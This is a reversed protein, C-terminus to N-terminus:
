SRLRYARQRCANSCFKADRRKPLFAKGCGTCVIMSRSRNRRRRERQACRNSCVTLLKSTGYVHITRNTAFRLRQGCDKCTAQETANELERETVCADCVPVTEHQFLGTTPNGNGDDGYFRWYVRERVMYATANGGFSEECHTCCGAKKVYVKPTDLM